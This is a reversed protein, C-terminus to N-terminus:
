GSAVTLLLQLSGREVATQKAFFLCLNKLKWAAKANNGLNNERNTSKSLQAPHLLLSTQGHTNWLKCPLLGGSHQCALFLSLCESAKSHM